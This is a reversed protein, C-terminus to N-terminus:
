IMMDDNDLNDDEKSRFRFTREVSDGCQVAMGVDFVVGIVVSTFV